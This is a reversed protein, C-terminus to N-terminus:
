NVTDRRVRRRSPEQAGDQPEVEAPALEVQVGSELRVSVTERLINLAAV